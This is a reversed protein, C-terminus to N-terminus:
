FQDFFSSEGDDNNVKKPPPARFDLWVDAIGAWVLLQTMLLALISLGFRNPTSIENKEFFYFLLSMGVIFYLIKSVAICNAGIVRVLHRIELQVIGDAGNYLLWGALFVWILKWDFRWSSFAPFPQVALGHRPAAMSMGLYMVTLSFLHWGFFFTVPVLLAVFEMWDRFQRMVAETAEAAEAAETSGIVATESGPINATEAATVSKSAMDGGSTKAPTTTAPKSPASRTNLKRVQEELIKAQKEFVSRLKWVRVGAEGFLPSVSWLCFSFLMAGAVSIGIARLAPLGHAMGHALLGAPLLLAPIFLIGASSGGYAALGTLTLCAYLAFWVGGWALGAFVAPVGAVAMLLTSLLPTHLSVFLTVLTLAAMLATGAPRQEVIKNM